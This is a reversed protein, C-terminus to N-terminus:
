RWASLVFHIDEYSISDPLADKIPKLREYGLEEIKEEILRRKQPDVKEALRLGMGAEEAKLLHRIITQETFGLEAVLEQVTAGNLFAEATQKFQGSKAKQEKRRVVTGQGPGPKREAFPTLIALFLEGYKELKQEGVGSISRLEEKTLPVKGSMEKLTRDSFIMYPPVQQEEALRKREQRLAEFIDDQEEVAEPITTESLLVKAEGTLVPVAKETLQLTPFSSDTPQLYGEATLVDIMDAVARQTWEKMLGYTSVDTLGFQKIKQNESGVLVQAVITKGFRERLRKVCSFIIQAERTRDIKEGSDVCNSCKGCGEGDEDGFYDLIYQQLCRETHCYSTMQQLKKYEMAQREDIRDSQEILFTHTRIDQAAFLLICDSDEGDRGARGAEQYYAELSRPLSYHLVFRVNSKDIGMGFANTAVIVKKKDYIFAEQSGSREEERMGGHYRAVEFGAGSLEEFLQDVEKRTTAYIIGSEQKRMTLYSRIFDKKNVGKKVEFRLNPRAFGMTITSQERIHLYEQLDARVQKTATATLALVAPQDKLQELWEPIRLYSPRFDHGWQSMCHAEDIAVLSLSVSQLLQQFHPHELREPAVYVLKCAGAKIQAHRKQEEAATLTSNLFTAGVGYEQLADVQDKMLSILPTIVVTLGPLILAPIQYCLSKGGGTPMIGLTDHGALVQEIIAQQGQRFHDYGFVTRLKEQAQEMQLTQM